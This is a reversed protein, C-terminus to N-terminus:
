SWDFVVVSWFLDGIIAVVRDVAVLFHGFLTWSECVYVCVLFLGMGMQLGISVM